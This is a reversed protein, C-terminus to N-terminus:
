DIFSVVIFISCLFDRKGEFLFLREIAPKNGYKITEINFAHIERAEEVSYGLSYLISDYFGPFFPLEINFKMSM